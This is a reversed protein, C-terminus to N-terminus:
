LLYQMIIGWRMPKFRYGFHYRTDKLAVDSDNHYFRNGQPCNLFQLVIHIIEDWWDSLASVICLALCLVSSRHGYDTLYLMCVHICKWVPRIAHVINSTKAFWEVNLPLKHTM